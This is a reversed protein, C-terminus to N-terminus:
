PLSYVVRVGRCVASAIVSIHTEDEFLKSVLKLGAYNRGQLLQAFRQVAAVMEADEDGGVSIFVTAELDSHERAYAEELKFILGDDWALAPSSIIYRQFASPRSLLCWAAFLGGFSAGLIAQDSADVRYNRQVFPKVANQMFELFAGAGGPLLGREKLTDGLPHMAMFAADMSPTLDRARLPRTAIYDDLPYAIGVALLEPAEGAMQLARISDTVLGFGGVADLIYLVPYTQGGRKYSRPLAILLNFDQGIEASHLKRIETHPIQVPM